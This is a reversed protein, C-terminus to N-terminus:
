LKRNKIALGTLMRIKSRRKNLNVNCDSKYSPYDPSVLTAVTDCFSEESWQDLYSRRHNRAYSESDPIALSKLWDCLFDHTYNTVEITRDDSSTVLFKKYAKRADAALHRWWIHAAEHALHPLLMGTALSRTGVEIHPSIRARSTQKFDAYLTSSNGNETLGECTSITVDYQRCLNQLQRPLKLFARAISKVNNAQMGEAFWIGTRSERVYTGLFRRYRVRSAWPREALTITRKVATIM